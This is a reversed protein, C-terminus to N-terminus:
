VATVGANAAANAQQGRLAALAFDLSQRYHRQAAEGNGLTEQLRAATLHSAYTPELAISADVYNQAKGWLERRACLRGLTLLLAADHPHAALWREAREIQRLADVDECEAYLGALDSDWSQELSREIIDAAPTGAKLAAYGKAAAHAVQTDRRLDDPVKRWADDLAALNTACRGLHQALAHRRLRAAQEQDFVNRRELQDIVALSKEWEKALQLARLELRLSATHKQPQMQLVALADAARRDKLLLEAQTVVKMIDAAPLHAAGQALYADRREYARLEHAARAALMAALGPQGGLSMAAKAAKEARAYRGSFFEHLALTIAEHAKQQRRAERYVRVQRPMDVMAAVMRVALYALAFAGPLVIMALVLSLEIRHPPLVVQVYGASTRLAAAVAGVAVAIVAIIWLLSKM